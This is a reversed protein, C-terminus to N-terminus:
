KKEKSVADSLNQKIDKLTISTEEPDVELAKNICRKAEDFMGLDKLWFACFVLEQGDQSVNEFAKQCQFASEEAKGQKGLLSAYAFRARANNPEMEIAKELIAEAEKPKGLRYLTYAGKIRAILCSPKLEIVKNFIIQAEELKNQSSLSVGYEYLAAVDNPWKNLMQKCIAEAEGFKGQLRLTLAFEIWCIRLEPAITYAIKAEKAADQLKGLGHLISILRFRADLDYPRKSLEDKYQIEAQRLKAFLNPTAHFKPLEIDSKDLEGINRLTLCLLLHNVPNYSIASQIKKLETEAELPKGIKEFLFSCQLWSILDKPMALIKRIEIEAELIKGEEILKLVLPLALEYAQLNMMLPNSAPPSVPAFSSARHLPSPAQISGQFLKGANRDKLSGQQAKVKSLTASQTNGIEMESNEQTKQRKSRTNENKEIQMEETDSTKLTVEKMLETLREPSVSSRGRKTSATAAILNPSTPSIPNSSARTPFVNM